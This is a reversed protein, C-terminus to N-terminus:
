SPQSIGFLLGAGAAISTLQRQIKMTEFGNSLSLKQRLAYLLFVISQPKGGKACIGGWGAKGLSNRGVVAGAPVSGASISHTNPDIAGVAWVVGGKAGGVLNLAFLFLQKTDAPVRSWQLPPSENSGACTYRAPIQGGRKFASSTLLVQELKPKASKPTSKAQSTTSSSTSTTSTSTSSPSTATSTTAASSSSTTTAASSAASTTASAVSTSSSSGSGCGSLAIALVGALMAFSASFRVRGM